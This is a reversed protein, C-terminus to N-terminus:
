AQGENPKHSPSQLKTLTSLCQLWHLISISQTVENVHPSSSFIYFWKPLIHFLQQWQSLSNPNNQCRTRQIGAQFRLVQFESLDDSTFPNKHTQTIQNKMRLKMTMYSHVLFYRRTVWPDKVQKLNGPPQFNVFRVHRIM